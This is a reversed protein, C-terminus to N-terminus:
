APPHAVLWEGLVDVPISIPASAPSGYYPHAAAHVTFTVGRSAFYAIVLSDVMAIIHTCAHDVAVDVAADLMREFLGSHGRGAQVAATLVDLVVVPGGHGASLVAILDVDFPPAAADEASLSVLPGPVGLRLMGAWDGDRALVFYMQADHDAYYSRLAEATEGFSTRFISAEIKEAEARAGPFPEATAAFTICSPSAM